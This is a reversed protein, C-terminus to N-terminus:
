QLAEPPAILELQEHPRIVAIVKEIDADKRLVGKGDTYKMEHLLVKLTTSAGFTIEDRLVREIFSQDSISVFFNGAGDNVRWKDGSQFSPSVINLHTEFRKDELPVEEYEPVVFYASEEKSVEVSIGGSQVIAFSDIGEKSLPEEIAKQLAQKLKHNRFLDITRKEVELFEDDLYVRVKGGHFEFRTPRRNKLRKILWIVAGVSGLIEIANAIGSAMEGSLLDLFRDTIAQASTFDIKFCGTKFSAKVALRTQTKGGNITADAEELLMDMAMLATSLDRAAMENGELAPGDYVVQFTATSM